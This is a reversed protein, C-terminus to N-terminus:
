NFGSGDRILSKEAPGMFKVTARTVNGRIDTSKVAQSGYFWLLCPRLVM